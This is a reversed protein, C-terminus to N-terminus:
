EGYPIWINKIETAKRLFAEGQGQERDFWDHYLGHNVWTRKMTSAAEEEVLKSGRRSGWYWFGEIDQHRALVETLVERDGTVINVAGGPLDSTDLVQYFDTALLAYHWSPVVVVRNGMALAPMVTSVFGLLGAEEPAVIAMVGLPERMALTVNRFPTAHVRSDYKDTMAAYTYIRRLCLAFEAKAEAPGRGSLQEIRHMFESSRAALNEAIYYMVQSRNYATARTWAEASRAAEVAKRIDKRNGAPVEAVIRGSADFAANSYGGDPRVQRGGIYLKATRDIGPV